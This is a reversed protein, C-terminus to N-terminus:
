AVEKAILDEDQCAFLEKGDPTKLWTGAHVGFIVTDGVTISKDATPGVSLVKGHCPANRKEANPPIIISTTKLQARELLVRGFLPEWKM